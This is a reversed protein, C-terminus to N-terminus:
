QEDGFILKSQYQGIKNRLMRLSEKIDGIESADKEPLLEKILKGVDRVRHICNHVTIREEPILKSISEGYELNFEVLIDEIKKDFNLLKGRDLKSDEVLDIVIKVKQMMSSLRHKAKNIDDSKQIQSQNGVKINELMLAIKLQKKNNVLINIIALVGSIILPIIVNIINSSM